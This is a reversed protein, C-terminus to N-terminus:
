QHEIPRGSRAEVVVRAEGAQDVGRSASRRHDAYVATREVEGSREASGADRDESGRIGRAVSRITRVHAHQAAVGGGGRVLALGLDGGTHAGDRRVLDEVIELLKQTGWAIRRRPRWAARGWRSGSRLRIRTTR